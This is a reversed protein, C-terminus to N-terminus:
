LTLPLERLGDITLNLKQSLSTPDSLDEDSIFHVDLLGGSKYGTRIFNIEDL